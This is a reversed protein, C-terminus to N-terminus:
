PRAPDADKDRLAFYLIPGLIPVIFILVLMAAVRLGGSGSRLVDVMAATWLLIVPAVLLVGFITELFTSTALTMVAAALTGAPDQALL